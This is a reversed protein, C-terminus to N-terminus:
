PLIEYRRTTTWDGDETVYGEARDALVLVRVDPSLMSAELENLDHMVYSELDNDGDMYVLITWAAGPDDEVPAILDPEGEPEPAPACAIFLLSILAHM